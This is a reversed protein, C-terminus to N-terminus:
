GVVEAEGVGDWGSGGLPADKDEIRLIFLALIRPHLRNAQGADLRYVLEICIDTLTEVNCQRELVCRGGWWEM